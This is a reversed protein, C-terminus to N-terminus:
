SPGSDPTVHVDVTLGNVTGLANSNTNAQLFLYDGRVLQPDAPVAGVTTFDTGDATHTLTALQTLVGGRRRWLEIEVVTPATGGEILHLHAVAIIATVDINIQGFFAMAAATAVGPVALTPAVDRMVLFYNTGTLPGHGPKWSPM